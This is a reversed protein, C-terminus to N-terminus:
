FDQKLCNFKISHHYLYFAPYHLINSFIRFTSWGDKAAQSEDGDDDGDDDQRQGPPDFPSVQQAGGDPLTM